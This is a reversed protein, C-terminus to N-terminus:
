LSSFKYTYKYTFKICPHQKNLFELFNMADNMLQAFEELWNRERHGIFLNALIPGLLKFFFKM